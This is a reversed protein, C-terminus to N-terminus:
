KIVSKRRKAKAQYLQRDALEIQESIQSPQTYTFTSIGVSIGLYWPSSSYRNYQEVERRIGEYIREVTTSGGDQAQKKSARGGDQIREESSGGGDQIREESTGGGEKIREESSGDGEQLLVLATFEDGGTRGLPCDSPLTQALTQAAIRIAEDGSSHGFTDNIQKLHDLDAMVLACSTGPGYERLLDFIQNILGARNYLGTLNDHSASFKLIQNKEDLSDRDRQQALALVLYRMATGIELSLTYYFLMDEQELEVMFVGYHTSGFFLPFFATQLGKRSDASTLPQLTKVIPANHQAYASVQVGNQDMILKLTDPVLESRQPDAAAPVPLLALRSRPTNLSWLLNGLTYFFTQEDVREALLSRLMLAALLSDRKLRKFREEGTPVSMAATALKSESHASDTCGCSQRYYVPPNIRVSKPLTGSLTSRISEALVGALERVSQSVSTLTPSLRYSTDDFGTVAVDRGPELGHKRLVRYACEAMEDNACVIADPHPCHQLLKEVENDVRDTFDGHVIMEETTPLGHEMMADKWAQCRLESDPVGAPGALFLVSRCGHVEILHDVCEKMGSYNDITISMVNPLDTEVELVFVPVKPLRPLFKELPLPDAVGSITGYSVVLVDPRVFRSYEFLTYYHNDFGTDVYDDVNLFRSADLGQFLCVDVDLEKLADCVSDIVLNAYDTHLSGTMVGVVLRSSVKQTSDMRTVEHDM